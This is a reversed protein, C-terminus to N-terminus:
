VNREEPSCCRTVIDQVITQVPQTADINKGYEFRNVLMHVARAADEGYGNKRATDRAICADVPATLTFVYGPVPMEGILEDINEKHYFCGDIVVPKTKLATRIHPLMIAQAKRFQEAPICPEDKPVLDLKHEVMVADLAIYAAHLQKAVAQAITTKGVGLPGRILVYYSM